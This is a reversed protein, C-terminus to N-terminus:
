KPVTALFHVLRLLGFISGFAALALVLGNRAMTITTELKSVRVDIESIREASMERIEDSLHEIREELKGFSNCFYTIKTELSALRQLIATVDGNGPNGGKRQDLKEGLM